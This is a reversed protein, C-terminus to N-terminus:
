CLRNMVNKGRAPVITISKVASRAHLDPLFNMALQIDSSQKIKKTLLSYTLSSVNKNSHLNIDM